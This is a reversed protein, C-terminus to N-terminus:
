IIGRGAAKHGLTLNARETMEIRRSTRRKSLPAGSRPKSSHYLSEAQAPTGTAAELDLKAFLAKVKPSNQVKTVAKNLKAVIAKPTKPPAAIANWTGSEFGKIGIEDLTPIDPLQPLRKLTAM